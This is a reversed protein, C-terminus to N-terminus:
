WTFLRLRRCNKFLAAEWASCYSVTETDGSASGDRNNDNNNYLYEVKQSHLIEEEGDIVVARAGSTGFDLGLYLDTACSTQDGIVLVVVSLVISLNILNTEFINTNLEIGM